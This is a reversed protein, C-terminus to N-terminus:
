KYWSLMDDNNRFYKEFGLFEKMMLVGYRNTFHHAPM